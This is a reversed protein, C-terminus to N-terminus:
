KAKALVRVEKAAKAAGAEAYYVIVSDGAAVVEPVSIPKGAEKAARAKTGVGVGIVNIKSDFSFTWSQNDAGKVTLSNATVATVNGRYNSGPSDASMGEGAAVTRIETATMVGGAETYDVEVSQGAKVFEALSVGPKGAKEKERAATGAGRAILRTASEVKFTFEKGMAKVTITDKGMATVAGRVWKTQASLGTTVAFIAVCVVVAVKWSCKM